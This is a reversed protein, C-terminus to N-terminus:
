DYAAIALSAALKTNSALPPSHAVLMGYILQHRPTTQRRDSRM